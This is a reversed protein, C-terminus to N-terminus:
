LDAKQNLKFKSPVQSSITNNKMFIHHKHSLSTEYIIFIIFMIFYFETPWPFDDKCNNSNSILNTNLVILNDAQKATRIKCM